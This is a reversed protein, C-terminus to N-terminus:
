QMDAADAAHNLDIMTAADSTADAVNLAAYDTLRAARTELDRRATAIDAPAQRLTAIMRPTVRSLIWRRWAGPEALAGTIDAAVIEPM